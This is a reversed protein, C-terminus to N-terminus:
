ITLLLVTYGAIGLAFAWFRSRRQTPVEEKLVNLIAGGALFAILVAIVAEHVRTAWGVAFGAAVAGCLVWRGVRRFRAQHDEDLGYDTVVFHTAMAAAFFALSALTETERHLLLYGIVANYVGFSGMHIWFVGASTAAGPDTRPGRGTSGREGRSEKALRELGYFAALGLLAILYVHRDALSLATAGVTERVTGQAKALEPLLHVFVYAVSIGGFASLWASRPVGRLFRMSPTFVHVAVLVAAAVGAAWRTEEM